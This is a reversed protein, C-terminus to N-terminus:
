AVYEYREERTYYERQISISISVTATDNQAVITMAGNAGITLVVNGDKDTRFTRIIGNYDEDPVLDRYATLRDLNEQRPHGHKNNTGCSIVAYEPDVYELFEKSTSDASGHHGVKLVDIDIKINKAMFWQEVDNKSGDGEGDGTFMVKRGGYELVTVPSVANLKKADGYKVTEYYAKDRCYSRVSYNTGSLNIIDGVNQVVNANVINGNEDTYTEAYAATMADRFVRTGVNGPVVPAGKPVENYTLAPVYINKVDYKAIVDDMFDCHDADSHTLIFADISTVGFSDLYATIKASVSKKGGLDANYSPHNKDDYAGGADIMMTKGDPFRIFISDGQGIDMFHVELRDGTIDSPPPTGGGNGSGGGDPVTDETPQGINFIKNFLDRDLLYISGLVIAVILVLVLLAIFVQKPHSRVVKKAKRAVKKKAKDKDKKSAM